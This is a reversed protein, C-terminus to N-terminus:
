YNWSQILMEYKQDIQELYSEEDCSFYVIAAASAQGPFNKLRDLGALAEDVTM